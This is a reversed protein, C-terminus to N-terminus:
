PTYILKLTYESIYKICRQIFFIVKDRSNPWEIPTRYGKPLPVLCTPPDQPCHRERHEYHRTTRLQKVAKENDLCPIYDENATVNCLYWEHDELKEESNSEVKQRKNEKQSQAAQTSWQKKSKRGKKEAKPKPTVEVVDEVKQNEIKEPVQESTIGKLAAESDQQLMEPKPNAEVAGKDERFQEEPKTDFGQVEQPKGISQEQNEVAAAAIEEDKKNKNSAKPITQQPKEPETIKVDSDAGAEHIVSAQEKQTLSSEESLQADMSAMIHQNQSEINSTKEDSKIADDPLQGPNDGFVSSATDKATEAIKAAIEHSASLEDNTVSTDISTRTAIDDDSQTQPTVVSKSSLM